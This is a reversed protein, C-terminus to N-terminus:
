GDGLLSQSWNHWQSQAIVATGFWLQSLLSLLSRTRQVPAYTHHELLSVERLSACASQPSTTPSSNATFLWSDHFTHAHSIVKGPQADSAVQAPVQQATYPVLWPPQKVRGSAAACTVIDICAIISNM